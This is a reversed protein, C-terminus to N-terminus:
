GLSDIRTVRCPLKEPKEDALLWRCFVIGERRGATGVWNPLGPNEASVVVTFSGDRNLRIQSSNISVRHYRYDFSQM